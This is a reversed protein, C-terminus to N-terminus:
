AEQGHLRRGGDTPWSAGHTTMPRKSTISLTPRYLRWQRNIPTFLTTHRGIGESPSLFLVGDQALAQHFVPLMRSQTEAELYIMLNRCSLLDLGSLPPGMLVDQTTFTVMERVEQKILYGSGAKTFFRDLRDRTVDQEINSPYWGTRATEIADDDLDAALLQVHYKQRVEDMYERLIIAISYAEEGTACGAIWVRPVFNDPKNALLQPVIDKKLVAFAEPDRFFRTVNILLESLLARTEAPHQGMYRAYVEMNRIDHLMMRQVISRVLADRKYTSFDHGSVDLLELLIRSIGEEASPLPSIKHATKKPPM